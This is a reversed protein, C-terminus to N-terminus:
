GGAEVGGVGVRGGVPGRWKGEGARRVEVRYAAALTGVGILVGLPLGLACGWWRPVLNLTSAAAFAAHAAVAAQWLSADGDDWGAFALCAGGAHLALGAAAGVAGGAFLSASGCAPTYLTRGGTALPLWALYLLVAHTGGHALGHALALAAGDGGDPPRHGPSAAAAGALARLLSRDAVWLARATGTEVAVAVALAALRAPLTVIPALPLLLLSTLFLAALWVFASPLSLPPPQSAPPPM